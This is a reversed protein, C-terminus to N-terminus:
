VLFLSILSIFIPALVNLVLRATKREKSMGSVKPKSSPADSAPIETTAEM